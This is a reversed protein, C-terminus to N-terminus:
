RAVVFRAIRASGRMTVRAHYIGAPLHEVSIPVVTHGAEVTGHYVEGLWAGMIDVLAIDVEGGIAAHLDIICTNAVPNPVVAVRLTRDGDDADGVSTVTTTTFSRGVSWPSTSPSGNRRSRVRWHYTKGPMLNRVTYSTDYITPEDVLPLSFADNDAVQLRYWEAGIAKGWKVVVTLPVDVARDLPETPTPVGLQIGGQLTFSWTPSWPSRGGSSRARVRWYYTVGASVSGLIRTTDSQDVYDNVLGTTFTNETSVQLDYGSASSSANWTVVVPATLNSTGNAPTLLAPPALEGSSDGPKFPWKIVSGDATSIFVNTGSVDCALADGKFEANTYSAYGSPVRHVVIAGTSLCAVLHTNNAAFATSRITGQAAIGYSIETGGQLTSVRFSDATACAVYEGDDSCAVDVVSGVFPTTARVETWTSTNWIRVTGNDCGVVLFNGSVAVSNVKSGADLTREVTWNAVNWIKVGSVPADHGSFLRDGSLSWGLATTRAGADVSRALSGNTPDWIRITDAETGVALRSGDPRWAVSLVAPGSLYTWRNDLSSRISDIRTIVRVVDGSSADRIAVVGDGRGVAVRDGASNLDIAHSEASSDVLIGTSNDSARWFRVVRDDGASALMAGDASFQVANAGLFSSSQTGARHRLRVTPPQSLSDPRYTYVTGYDDSSAIFLGTPSYVVDTADLRMQTYQKVVSGTSTSFITVGCGTSTYLCTGSTAAVYNGDPSYVASVGLHLATDNWIRTQAGTAVSWTRVSGDTNSATVVSNNDPSFQVSNIDGVHGTITRVPSWNSGNWIKVVADSGASAVYQGNPSVDVGAVRGNHATISQVQEGTNINWVRVSGDTGGTLIRQNDSFFTATTAQATGLYRHLRRSQLDWVKVSGDLAVTALWQSNASFTIHVVAAQSGGRIWTPETYQSWAALTATLGFVIVPLTLRRM